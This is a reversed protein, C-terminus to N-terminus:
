TFSSYIYNIDNVSSYERIVRHARQTVRPKLNLQGESFQCPRRKQTAQLAYRCMPIVKDTTQGDTVSWYSHRAPSM